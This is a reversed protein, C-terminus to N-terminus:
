SAAKSTSLMGKGLLLYKTNHHPSCSPLSFENFLQVKQWHSKITECHIHTHMHTHAHAHTHMHTCTHTCTHTRTCTHAHTHAYTHANHAHTYARTHAHTCTHTCTDIHTHTHLPAKPLKFQYYISRNTFQIILNKMSESTEEERFRGHNMGLIVSLSM